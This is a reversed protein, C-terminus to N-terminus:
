LLLIMISISTQISTNPIRGNFLKIPTSINTGNNVVSVSLIDGGPLPRLEKFAVEGQFPGFNDEHFSGITAWPYATFSEHTM